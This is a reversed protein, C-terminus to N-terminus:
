QLLMLDSRSVVVPPGVSQFLSHFFWSHQKLLNNRATVFVHTKFVLLPFICIFFILPKQLIFFRTMLHLLPKQNIKAKQNHDMLWAEASRWVLIDLLGDFLKRKRLSWPPICSIRRTLPILQWPAIGWSFMISAFWIDLWGDSMREKKFSWPGPHPFYSIRRIARRLILPQITWSRIINLWGMYGAMWWCTEKEWFGPHLHSVPYGKPLSDRYKTPYSM